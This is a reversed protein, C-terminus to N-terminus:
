ASIRSLAYEGRPSLTIKGAGHPLIILNARNLFGVAVTHERPEVTARRGVGPHLALRVTGERIATLAALRDADIM